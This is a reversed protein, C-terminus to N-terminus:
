FNIWGRVDGLFEEPISPPTGKKDEFVQLSEIAGKYSSEFTPHTKPGHHPNKGALDELAEYHSKNQLFHLLKDGNLKNPTNRFNTLLNNYEDRIKIEQKTM